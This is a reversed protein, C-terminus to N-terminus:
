AAGGPAGTAAAPQPRATILGRSAPDTGERWLRFIGLTRRLSRVTSLRPLVTSIVKSIPGKISTSRQHLSSSQTIARSM